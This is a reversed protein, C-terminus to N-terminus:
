VPFIKRHFNSVSILIKVAFLLSNDYEKLAM